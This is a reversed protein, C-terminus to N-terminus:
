WDLEGFYGFTEFRHLDGHIVPDRVRDSRGQVMMITDLIEILEGKKVKGGGNLM